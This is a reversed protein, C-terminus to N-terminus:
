FRLNTDTDLPSIFARDHPFIFDKIQKERYHLHELLAIERGDENTRERERERRENLVCGLRRIKKEGRPAPAGQLALMQM